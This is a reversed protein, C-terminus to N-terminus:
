DVFIDEAVEKTTEVRFGERLYLYVADAVPDYTLRM